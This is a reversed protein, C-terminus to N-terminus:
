LNYKSNIASYITMLKEKPFIRGEKPKISIIKRLHESLTKKPIEIIIEKKFYQADLDKQFIKKADINYGTMGMGDIKVKLKNSNEFEFGGDDNSVVKLIENQSIKDFLQITIGPIPEHTEKILVYGKIFHESLKTKQKM